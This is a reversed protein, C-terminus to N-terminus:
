PKSEHIPGVTLTKTSATHRAIEDAEFYEPKLRRESSLPLQDTAHVSTSDSTQGYLHLTYARIPKSLSVLRLVRSGLYAQRRGTSDPEGFTMARLTVLCFRDWEIPVSCQSRHKPLISVGGMPWTKSAPGIRFVDGLVPERSLKLRRIAVLASDIAETVAQALRASPGGGSTVIQDLEALLGEGVTTAMGEQWLVFKLAAASTARARGDFRVLQDAFDRWETPRQKVWDTRSALADRLLRQWTESGYWKEDLALDIADEMTFAYARSLAEIARLARTNTRGPRDNFVYSPYRDASVPGNPVMMDPAINNNQMYGQVPNTVQVLDDFSHRGKWATASSNGPVPRRWDYGSPRIPPRGARVYFLNGDADGFMVNQPYMGVTAMAAKIESVNKALNLRFVEEDFAPTAASDMYTTSVVFAKTGARAVVPSMVGNHMTYELTRTIPKGGKVAVTVKRTIMSQPKGDFLYRTPRKPDTEVEFCDAPDANGTTQGWSVSRNHALLLLPGFAYGSSELEGAHLRYEYFSRGDVGGHPDSLVITANDATRWPALVWENSAVMRDDSPARIGAALKVGGRRCDSVGMGAQYSSWLVSRTLVMADWPELRPAWAPVANPHEVMFAQIGAVWSRYSRQLVPSLRGLGVKAAETHQWLRQEIDSGVMTAGRVTALEGRGRLILALLPELIDEAQAYGLGYFGNEVTAAFIHPVGFEDRRIVVKGDLSDTRAATVASASVWALALLSALTIM